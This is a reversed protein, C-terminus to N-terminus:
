ICRFNEGGAKGIRSGHGSGAAANPFAPKHNKGGGAKVAYPHIGQIRFGDLPDKLGFAPRFDFGKEDENRIHSRGQFLNFVRGGFGQPKHFYEPWSTEGQDESGLSVKERGKGCSRTLNTDPNWLM